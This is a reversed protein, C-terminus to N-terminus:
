VCIATVSRRSRAYMTNQCSRTSVVSFLTSHRWFNVPIVTKWWIPSVSLIQLFFARHRTTNERYNAKKKKQEDEQVTAGSPISEEELLHVVQDSLLRLGEIQQHALNKPTPDFVRFVGLSFGRSSILPAGAYFRFGPDFPMNKMNKTREDELINEIILPQGPNSLSFQCVSIERPIEKLM